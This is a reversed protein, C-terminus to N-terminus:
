GIKGGEDHAEFLIGPLVSKIDKFIDLFKAKEGSDINLEQYVIIHKGDSRKEDAFTNAVDQFSSDRKDLPKYAEGGLTAKWKAKHADLKSQEDASLDQSNFGVLYVTYGGM